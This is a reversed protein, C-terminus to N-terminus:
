CTRLIGLHMVYGANSSSMQSDRDEPVRWVQFVAMFATLFASFVLDSRLQQVILCLTPRDTVARLQCIEVCTRVFPAILAENYICDCALVLDVDTGEPLFTSLSALSSTEWDLTLLSVNDINSRPETIASKSSAKSQRPKSRTAKNTELNRRLGKFVYEQDTVIYKGVKPALVLPLIGSIGCGLELITSNNHLVGYDFFPCRSSTIWDAFWPTVRWVVAGTTGEKRESALQSPSQAITLDHGAVSIELTQAKRDVFGLDSDPAYSAFLLFTEEDPDEIPLGLTKVLDDLGMWIIM